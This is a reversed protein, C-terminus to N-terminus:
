TETVHTMAKGPLREQDGWILDMSSQVESFFFVYACLSDAGLLILGSLSVSTVAVPCVHVFFSLCLLFLNLFLPPALSM